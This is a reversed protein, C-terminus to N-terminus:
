ASFDRAKFRRPVKLRFIDGHMRAVYVGRQHARQEMEQSCDVAALIGFLKYGRFQPLFYFFRELNRVFKELERENLHSKVEAAVLTRRKGNVAGVLELELEDKGKRFRRGPLIQDVGFHRQFIEELSPLAMGEAFDGFKNGLGGIQKGLEKIQRDTAKLQRDTAKLQRDTEKMRRDTEEMQLATREQTALVRALTEKMERDIM